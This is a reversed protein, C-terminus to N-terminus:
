TRTTIARDAGAAHRHCPLEDSPQRHDVSRLRAAGHRYAAGQRHTRTPLARRPHREGFLARHLYRDGRRRHAAAPGGPDGTISMLGSMGQIIYDYGARHAYPGTQGFGTISCYILRPNVKALSEYGLGYKTLGGLKFNEILIDAGAALDRVLAQGEPTRFDATVSQKGRNCSHFYAASRDGDREIFPPGWQRTDDGAPSEVKIVDAGLDALTQGAWPGALIRALELVRLGDLPATMGRHRGAARRAHRCLRFLGHQFVARRQHRFSPTGTIEDAEAQETSVTVMAQAMDNDSLCTELAEDSLGARRGLRRLNEAVEAPQGQVWERQEEMLMEVIGFYRMEGGCRAVMGAWLGYRDFYVERMIFRVQGTEVYNEVLQPYTNLHFTACHPCTM